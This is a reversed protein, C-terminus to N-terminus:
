KVAEPVKKIKSKILIYMKLTCQVFLYIVTSLILSYLFNVVVSPVFYLMKGRFGPLIQIKGTYIIDDAIYSLLYIGFCRESLFKIIQKVHINWGSTRIRAVLAFTLITTITNIPSGWQQWPGWIFIQGFSRVFNFGGALVLHIGLILALWKTKIKLQFERAYCGLFYYTVPYLGNWFEPLIKQNGSASILHKWWLDTDVQFINTM